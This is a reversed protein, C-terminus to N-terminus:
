ARTPKLLDIQLLITETKWASKPLKDLSIDPAPYEIAESMADSGHRDSCTEESLDSRANQGSLHGSNFVEGMADISFV